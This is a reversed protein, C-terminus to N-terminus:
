FKLLCSDCIYRDQGKKNVVKIFGIDNFDEELKKLCKYCTINEQQTSAVGEIAAYSEARAKLESLFQAVYKGETVRHDFSLSVIADGSVLNPQSIGLIASNNKNVLPVFSSIGFSSLDTITFTIDTLDKSELKKDVYKNSLEMLEDEIKNITKENTKKICVVKLGEDIDIAIGVNVYNYKIIKDNSYYANLKDFKKLLLSSEFIIIPLLSNKFYKLKSNTAKFISSANININITSILGATQVSSLYEIEKRKSISLKEITTNEEFLETKNNAKEQQQNIPELEVTKKLKPNLYFLVQEKSVFDFKSFNLKDINNEILLSLASKSFVTDFVEESTNQLQFPLFDASSDAIIHKKSANPVVLSNTMATIAEKNEVVDKIVIIPKNIAVDEELYCDYYIYGDYDSEVTLVAKSTEFEIITDGKKVLDGNSFPIGVITLYEDNVSEQPVTITQLIKM